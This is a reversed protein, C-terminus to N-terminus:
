SGEGEVAFARTAATNGDSLVLDEHTGRFIEIADALFLAGRFRRLDLPRSKTCQKRKPVGYAERRGLPAICSYSGRIARIIV